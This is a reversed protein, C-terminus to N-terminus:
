KKPEVGGLVIRSWMCISFTIADDGCGGFLSFVDLLGHVDSYDVGAAVEEGEFAHFVGPEAGDVDGDFLGPGGAGEVDGGLVEGGVGLGAVLEEADVGGVVALDHDEGAADGDLLVALYDASDADGSAGAILIV